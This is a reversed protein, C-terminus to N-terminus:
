LFAAGNLYGWSGRPFVWPFTVMANGPYLPAHVPHLYEYMEVTM